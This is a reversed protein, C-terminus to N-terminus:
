THVGLRGSDVMEERREPESLPVHAALSGAVELCSRAAVWPEARDCCLTM